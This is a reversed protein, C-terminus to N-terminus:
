PLLPDPAVLEPAASVIGGPEKRLRLVIVTWVAAFVVSAVLFAAAAGTAGYLSALVILLPILAVIELSQAVIRLEPRGISVPYSKTWGWVVQIAGVVLMLRMADTAGLYAVGNKDKYALRIFWPTLWLLPPVLVVMAATTGMVYRRLMRYLLDSRGSEVQHTQESLLVLRAPSSLAAFANQPAQAVRFYAVQLPGTVIGVLLTGLIGRMPSLVSGISSRVVFSRFPKRDEALPERAGAPYRRVAVWAATGIAATAVVQAIVIATVAATVGHPAGLALAALRLAMSVVLFGARVDYRRRVVLVAAAVGEPAQALPLLSAVLIPLALGKQGFIAHAFVALVALCAAGILGGAIKLALGVRFLQRLRGWRSTGVYRFGYKILAEDVTLDAFLQFFGTAALVVGLLGFETKSLSRAAVITAGFGLLASAYVGGATASRRWFVRSRM